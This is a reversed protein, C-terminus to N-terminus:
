TGPTEERTLRMQSKLIKEGECKGRRSEKGEGGGRIGFSRGQEVDGQFFGVQEWKRCEGRLEM